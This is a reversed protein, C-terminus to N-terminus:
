KYDLVYGIFTEETEYGSIFTEVTEVDYVFDDSIRVDLLENYFIAADLNYKDTVLLSMRVKIELYQNNFLAYVYLESADITYYDYNSLEMILLSLRTVFEENTMEPDNFTFALKYQFGTIFTENTVPGIYKETLLNGLDDISIYNGEESWIYDPFKSKDLLDQETTSLYSYSMNVFDNTTNEYFSTQGNLGVSPVLNDFRSELAIIREDYALVQSELLDNDTSLVDVELELSEIAAELDEITAVKLELTTYQEQLLTIDNVTESPTCSALAISLLIVALFALLAKKM